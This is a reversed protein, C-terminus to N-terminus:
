DEWNRCEKERQYAENYYGGWKDYAASLRDSREKEAKERYADIMEGWLNEQDEPLNLQDLIEEARDAAAM